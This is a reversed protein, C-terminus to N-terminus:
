SSLPATTALISAVMIITLMLIAEIALLNTPIVRKKAVLRNNVGGIMIAVVVVAIKSILIAGYEGAPLAGGAYVYAQAAGTAMACFVAFFALPAFQKLGEQLEERDLKGGLTYAFFYLVVPGIWLAILSVHFVWLVADVLPMPQDAAHSILGVAYTTVFLYAPFVINRYKAIKNNTFVQMVGRALCLGVVLTIITKNTFLSWRFASSSGPVVVVLYSIIRLLVGTSLLFAGAMIFKNFFSNIDNQEQLTRVKFLKNPYKPDEKKPFLVLLWFFSGVLLILGIDFITRAFVEFTRGGQPQKFKKGGVPSVVNGVTFSFEGEVIHGDSSYARYGLVYTGDVLTIISFTVNTAPGPPTTPKPSELKTGDAKRLTMSVQSPDVLGEFTLVAEKPQAPAVSGDVPTTSAIDVHAFAASPSLIGLFLIVSILAVKKSKLSIM